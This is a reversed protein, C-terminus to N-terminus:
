LTNKPLPKTQTKQQPPKEEVWTTKGQRAGLAGPTEEEGRCVDYKLPTPGNPGGWRSGKEGRGLEGAHPISEM